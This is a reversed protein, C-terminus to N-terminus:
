VQNEWFPKVYVLTSETVFSDQKLNQWDMIYNTFIESSLYKEFRLSHLVKLLCLVRKVIYIKLVSYKKIPNEKKISSCIPRKCFYEKKELKQYQLKHKVKVREFM